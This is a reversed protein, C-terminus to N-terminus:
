GDARASGDASARRRREQRASVRLVLLAYTSIMLWPYVLVITEIIRHRFTLRRLTVKYEIEALKQEVPVDLLQLAIFALDRIEKAQSQSRGPRPDAPEGAASPSSLGRDSDRRAPKRAM